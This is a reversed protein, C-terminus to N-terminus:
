RFSIRPEAIGLDGSIRSAEFSVDRVLGNTRGRHSGEDSPAVAVPTTAPAAAHSPRQENPARRDALGAVSAPGRLCQHSSHEPANIGRAHRARDRAPAARRGGASVCTTTPLVMRGCPKLDGRSRVPESHAVMARGKYASRRSSALDIIARLSIRDSANVPLPALAPRRANIYDLHSLERSLTQPRSLNRARELDGAAGDIAERRGLRLRYRSIVTAILM